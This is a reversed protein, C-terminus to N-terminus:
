LEGGAGAGAEAETVIEVMEFLAECGKFIAAALLSGTFPGFLPVVLGYHWESSGKGPIPLLQHALRPGLDRAPNAALGTVGGLGLILLAIYFSVFFSQLWPGDSVAAGTIEKQMESRLNFLEAGLVLAATLLTEQLYNYPRNFIAPRTAFISLKASADAQLAAHYVDLPNTKAEEKANDETTQAETDKPHTPADTVEEGMEEATSLTQGTSSHKFAEKNVNPTTANNNNNNKTPGDHTHLLPALQVSHRAYLEDEVFPPSETDHARLIAAVQLSHRRTHKRVTSAQLTAEVRRRHRMEMKDLLAQRHSNDDSSGTGDLFHEDTPMQIFSKFEQGLTEGKRQRSAPGFASAIRGANKDMCNNGHVLTAADSTNSPLPLSFGFHPFYFIVVLVAGVFAGAFNALGCCVAEKWSVKDILALFFLMAPNLHASIFGFWAINVGFALGFGISVALIGMGHGKTSPLLENALVSEGFFITLTTGVFESIVKAFLPYVYVVTM